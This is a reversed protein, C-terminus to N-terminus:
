RGNGDVKIVEGMKKLDNRKVSVRIGELTM